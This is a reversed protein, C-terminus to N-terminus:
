KAVKRYESPTLGSYEKFQKTFYSLDRYGVATAIEFVKMLPNHLMEKAKKMRTQTVFDSFSVGTNSKYLYALYNGSFALHDGVDKLTIKQDLHEIVYNEIEVVLKQPVTKRKFYVKESCQFLIERLKRKMESLTEYEFLIHLAEYNAGLIDDITENQNKLYIEVQSLVYYIIHYVSVTSRNTQFIEELHDHIDVISYKSVSDLLSTIHEELDTVQQSVEKRANVRTILRDKGVFLKSQVNQRAQKFSLQLNIPDSVFSGLGITVTFETENRVADLIKHLISFVTQDDGQLITVISANFWRMIISPVDIQMNAEVINVLIGILSDKEMGIRHDIEIMAVVAKHNTLVLSELPFVEIVDETEILELFWEQLLKNRIIPAHANERDLEDKTKKLLDIIENDNVPKLVYGFAKLSVAQKAYEFDDYSSVFIVKMNNNIDLGRETLELGSMIPMRIDTVLVNIDQGRVYSLAKMGNTAIAVVEMNLDDWPIFRKLRELDPLDDDVLLVKYM